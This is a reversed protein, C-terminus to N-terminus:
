AHARMHFGREPVLSLVFVAIAVLVNNWVTGVSVHTMALSSFFLWAAAVANVGRAAPTRLAVVSVATIIIGLIWTNTRLAPAHPWIFASIFLWIGLIINLYQPRASEHGHRVSSAPPTSTTTANPVHSEKTHARRVRMQDAHACRPNRSLFREIAPSRERSSFPLLRARDLSRPLGRAGARRQEYAGAILRMPVIHQLGLSTTDMNSAYSSVM